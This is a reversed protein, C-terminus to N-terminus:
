EITVKPKGAFFSFMLGGFGHGSWSENSVLKNDIIAQHDSRSYIYLKYFVSVALQEDIFFHSNIGMSPAAAFQSDDGNVVQILGIGGTLALDYRIATIGLPSFKGHSLTYLADAGIGLGIASFSSQNVRQPRQVRIQEALSTESSIAFFANVGLGWQDNLFYNTSLGIPFNRQYTDGLSSGLSLGFEFRDERMLKQNRVTKERELRKQMSERKEAWGSVSLTSCVLVITLGLVLVYSVQAIFRWTSDRYISGLYTM